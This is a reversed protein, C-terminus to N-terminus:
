IKLTFDFCIECLDGNYLLVFNVYIERLDSDYLWAFPLNGIL